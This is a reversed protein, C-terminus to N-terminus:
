HYKTSAIHKLICFYLKDNSIFMCNCLVRLRLVVPCITHSFYTSTHSIPSNIYNFYASRSMSSTQSTTSSPTHSVLEDLVGVHILLLYFINVRYNIFIIVQYQILGCAIAIFKLELFHFVPFNSIQHCFTAKEEVIWHINYRYLYVNCTM